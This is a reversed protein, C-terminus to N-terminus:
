EAVGKMDMKQVCWRAWRQQWEFELPRELQILRTMLARCDNGYDQLETAPASEATGSTIHRNGELVEGLAAYTEMLEAYAPDSEQYMAAQARADAIPGAVSAVPEVVFVRVDAHLPDPV